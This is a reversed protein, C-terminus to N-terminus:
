VTGAAYALWGAAVLASDWVVGILLAWGILKLEEAPRRARIVHWAVIAAASATGAWPWGHAAGLVCAFWGCQFAIVNFFLRLASPKAMFTGAEGNVAIMRPARVSLPQGVM